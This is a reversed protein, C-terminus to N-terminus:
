FKLAFLSTIFKNIFNMSPDGLLIIDYSKKYNELLNDDNENLFGVKILNRYNIGEVMRTDNLSDGLLLINNRGKIKKFSPFKKIAAVNKNLSHIIPKRITIAEGKANWEFANSIICINDLPVKAKKFFPKIIDEGLGSASLVVLPIGREGLLNVFKLFGSRFRHHSTEIIDALDKKHLGTKIILRFHKSWWERMIAKKEELPFSPNREIPNYRRYLIDAKRAYEPSLYKGNRLVAMMSILREGRFFARTLTGDFDSVVYFKEMGGKFIAKRKEELEKLNPVVVTVKRRMINEEKKKIKLTSM